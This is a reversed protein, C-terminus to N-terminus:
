TLFTVLRMLKQNSMDLKGQLTELIDRHNNLFTNKNKEHDLIATIITDKRQSYADNIVDKEKQFTRYIHQQEEITKYDQSMDISIDAQSTMSTNM